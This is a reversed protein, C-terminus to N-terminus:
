RSHLVNYKKPSLLSAVTRYGNPVAVGLGAGWALPSDIMNLGASRRCVFYGSWATPSFNSILLSNEVLLTM